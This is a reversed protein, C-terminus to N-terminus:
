KERGTFAMGVGLGVMTLGSAGGIVEMRRTSRAFWNRVTGAALGWGSDCVLAMTTFIAGLAVMQVPVHGASRDVFQPLMAAFFVASKPNTVGVVFGEWWTRRGPVPAVARELAEVLARRNRFTRIGLYVLYAAGLYKVVTYVVASTAIIGGIGAAVACALVFTGSATGVVTILASRRGYALARSVAFLVAPGPALILLLSAVSFTLLRDPAPM